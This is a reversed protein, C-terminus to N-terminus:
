RKYTELVMKEVSQPYKNNVPPLFATLLEAEKSKRTKESLRPIEVYYFELHDPYDDILTFMQYQTSKPDGIKDLYEGFRRQLNDTEGIYLLYNIFSANAINPTLIFFYLGGVTKPAKKNIVSFKMRQWKYSNYPKKPLGMWYPPALIFKRLYDRLESRYKRNTAPDFFSEQISKITRKKAM